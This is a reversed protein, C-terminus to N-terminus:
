KQNNVEFRHKFKTQTGKEFFFLFGKREKEQERRLGETLTRGRGRLETTRDDNGGRAGCGAESTAWRPGAAVGAAAEASPRTGGTM